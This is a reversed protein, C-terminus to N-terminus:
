KKSSHQTSLLRWGLWYYTANDVILYVVKKNNFEAAGETSVGAMLVSVGVIRKCENAKKQRHRFSATIIEFYRAV